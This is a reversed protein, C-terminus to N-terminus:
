RSPLPASAIASRLKAFSNVSNPMQFQIETASVGYMSKLGDILSTRVSFGLAQRIRECSLRCSRVDGDSLRQSLLIRSAPSSYPSFQKAYEVFELLPVEEESSVNFIHCGAPPM